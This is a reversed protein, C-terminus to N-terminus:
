KGKSPANSRGKGSPRGTTSPGNRLGGGKNKAM